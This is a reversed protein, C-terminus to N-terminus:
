SPGGPKADDLVWRVEGDVVVDTSVMGLSRAVAASAAHDPHVHALLRRVGSATLWDAVAAAAERALGLRQHPTAVVWALEGTRTGHDSRVTAQVFGAPRDDDRRRLVWNFWEQSGDPSRGVVQRRYRATLEDLSAPEGGTFEHLAADDLVAALESAHDVRLPELVLRDTTLPVPAPLDAAATM